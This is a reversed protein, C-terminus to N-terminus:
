VTVQAETITAKETTITTTHTTATAQVTTTAPINLYKRCFSTAPPGLVKLVVLAGNVAKCNVEREELLDARTHPTHPVAIASTILLLNAAIVILSVM